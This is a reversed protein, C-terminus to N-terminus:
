FDLLKLKEIGTAPMNLRSFEILAQNMVSTELNPKLVKIKTVPTDELADCVKHLLKEPLYEFQDGPGTIIAGNM